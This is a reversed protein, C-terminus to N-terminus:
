SEYLEYFLNADDFNDFYSIKFMNVEVMSEFRKVDYLSNVPLFFWGLCHLTGYQSINKSADEDFKILCDFDSYSSKLLKYDYKKMTGADTIIMEILIKIGEYESDKNTDHACICPHSVVLYHEM